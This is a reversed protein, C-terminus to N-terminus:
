SAVGSMVTLSATSIRLTRRHDATRSGARHHHLRPSLPETAV